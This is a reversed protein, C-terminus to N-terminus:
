DEMWGSPLRAVTAWYAAFKGVLEPYRQFEAPKCLFSAAGERYSRVVDEERQSTTLMVVPLHALTPDRKIERLVQFGDKKPMNIDLIVLGPRLAGRYDGERRLWALAAEGDRVVHLSNALRAEAFAERLLLVDDESDDAVLIPVPRPRM